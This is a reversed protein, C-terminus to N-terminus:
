CSEAIYRAVTEQIAGAVSGAARSADIIRFREPAQRALELYGQRVKRHFAVQEQEFRTEESTRTGRRVQRWARALGQDPELDLLLTLDPQLDSCVLRHLTKIAEIDLGRGYGQYALTADFFRDCVVVRGAALHPKIVQGLHQVRDALYLLLEAGADLDRSAPDLLIARIQAGIATGGPERTTVTEYGRSKLLAVINEIQTTKGAGEIGELTIFM